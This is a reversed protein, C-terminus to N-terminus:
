FPKRYLAEHYARGERVSELRGEDLRRRIYLSAARTDSAGRLKGPFRRAVEAIFATPGFTEGAPWAALVRAFAQSVKPRDGLDEDSRQPPPEHAQLLQEAGAVAAQLAEFRQTAEALEAAHRDRKERHHSEQQAHLMEQGRHFDIQGRLTELMETVTRRGNMTVERVAKLRQL